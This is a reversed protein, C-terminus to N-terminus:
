KIKSRKTRVPNKLQGSGPLCSGSISEKKEKKLVYNPNVGFPFKARKEGGHTEQNKTM